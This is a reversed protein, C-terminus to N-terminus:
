EHNVPDVILHASLLEECTQFLNLIEKGTIFIVHDTFPALESCFWFGRNGLYLDLFLHGSLVSDSLGLNNSVDNRLVFPSSISVVNPPVISKM